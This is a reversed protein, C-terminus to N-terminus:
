NKACYGYGISKQRKREKFEEGGYDTWDDIVKYLNYSGKGKGGRDVMEIFGKEIVDDFGRAIQQNKLGISYLEKYSLELEGNNIIIYGGRKGKSKRKICKLYLLILIMRGHKSMSIFARSLVLDKDIFTGKQYPCSHKKKSMHLGETELNQSGQIFRICPM